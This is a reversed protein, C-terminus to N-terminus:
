AFWRKERPLRGIAVMFRYAVVSVAAGAVVLVAGGPSNYAIAAEPRSALLLLIVWPAAVGLRAANRVWSQRAGMESRVALDERLHASLSRLIGTLDTGGVERAMKLTEIIRDPVPDALSQKLRDISGSFSATSRYDRAFEAFEPRLAEPGSTGLAAVAEPLAVGSRVASVLHDIVDPWLSDNVARRANERVSLLAFPLWVGLAGVALSLAAVGLVLQAIAAAVLGIVMAVTVFVASPVQALGAGALKLRLRGATRPQRTSESRPWLWPSATLLMGVALLCGLAATM